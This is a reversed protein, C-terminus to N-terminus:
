DREPWARWNAYYRTLDIADARMSSRVRWILPSRKGHRGKREIREFVFRIVYNKDNRTGLGEKIRRALMTRTVVLFRWTIGCRAAFVYYFRGKQTMVQFRQVNFQASYAHFPRSLRHANATKVQLRDLRGSSDTVAFIDDGIDIQPIAVNYGRYALESMVALQGAMGTYHTSPM